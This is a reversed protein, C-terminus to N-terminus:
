LDGAQQRCAERVVDLTVCYYGENNEKNRRKKERM